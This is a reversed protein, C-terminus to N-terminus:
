QKRTWTVGGSNVTLTQGNASMTFTTDGWITNVAVNPSSTYHQVRLDQGSWTLNGTSTLNRWVQDGVNVYGKNKADNWIASTTNFQTIVGTSGSVTIQIGNSEWVGNLSTNVTDGSDDDDFIDCAAMLFGIVAVLAIIAISRMAGFVKFLNKM